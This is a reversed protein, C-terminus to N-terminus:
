TLREFLVQFVPAAFIDRESSLLTNLNTKFIVPFFEMIFWDDRHDKLKV